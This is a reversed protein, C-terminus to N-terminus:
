NIKLWLLCVSVYISSVAGALLRATGPGVFRGEWSGFQPNDTQPEDLKQQLMTAIAQTNGFGDWGMTVHDTDAFIPPVTNIDASPVVRDLSWQLLTFKMM